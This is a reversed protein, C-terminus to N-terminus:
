KKRITSLYGYVATSKMFALLILLGFCLGCIYAVSTFGIKATPVYVVILWTFLLIIGTLIGIIVWKVRGANKDSVPQVVVRAPKPPPYKKDIWVTVVAVIGGIILGSFYMPLVVSMSVGNHMDYTRLLFGPGISLLVLPILCSIRYNTM